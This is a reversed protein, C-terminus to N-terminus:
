DPIILLHFLGPSPVSPVLSLKDKKSRGSHRRKRVKGMEEPMGLDREERIEAELRRRMRRCNRPSACVSLGASGNRNKCRRRSATSEVPEEAMDIREVLHTKSKRIPSSSLLLLEHLPLLNQPKPSPSPTTVRPSFPVLDLSLRSTDESEGDFRTLRALRSASKIRLRSDSRRSPTTSDMPLK